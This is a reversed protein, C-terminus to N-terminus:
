RDLAHTICTKLYSKQSSVQARLYKSIAMRDNLDFGEDEAAESLIVEGLVFPRVTRLPIPTLRYEKGQVELLAVKRIRIGVNTFTDIKIYVVYKELAEGDALSTAVSSGPQCIRYQKGAVEEPDVRCDHEHGWIVFNISDDFM